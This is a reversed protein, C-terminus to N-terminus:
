LNQKRSRGLSIEEIFLRYLHLTSTGIMKKVLGAPCSCILDAKEGTGRCRDDPHYGRSQLASAVTPFRGSPPWSRANGGTMGAQSARLGHAWTFCWTSCGVPAWYTM